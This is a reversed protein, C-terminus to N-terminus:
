QESNADADAAVVPAAVVVAVAAPARVAAVVAPVHREAAVARLGRRKRVRPEVAVVAAPRPVSHRRVRSNCRRGARPAATWRRERTPM